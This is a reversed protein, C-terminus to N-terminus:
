IWLRVQKWEGLYCRGNPWRMFGVGDKVDFRFEGEYRRSDPWTYVGLGHKAGKDEMGALGGHTACHPYTEFSFLAVSLRKAPRMNVVYWLFCPWNALRAPWPRM